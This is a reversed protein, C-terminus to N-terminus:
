KKSRNSLRVILYIVVAVLCIPVLKLAVWHLVSVIWILFVAVSFAVVADAAITKLRSVM